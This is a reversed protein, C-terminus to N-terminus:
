AIVHCHRQCTLGAVTLLLRVEQLSQYLSELFCSTLGNQVIALKNGLAVWVFFYVLQVQLYLFHLPLESLQDIDGSQKLFLVAVKSLKYALPLVQGYGLLYLVLGSLFHVSQIVLHLFDLHLKLVLLLLVALQFLVAKLDLLSRLLLM